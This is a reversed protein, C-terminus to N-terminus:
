LRADDEGVRVPLADPDDQRRRAASLHPADVDARAHRADVVAAHAHAVDLGDRFRRRQPPPLRAYGSRRGIVDRGAEMRAMSIAPCPPGSTSRTTSRGMGAGPAPSTSIRTVAAPTFRGSRICRRPLYGGGGPAESM